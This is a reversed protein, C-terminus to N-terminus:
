LIMNELGVLKTIYNFYPLALSGIHNYPLVTQHLYRQQNLDCITSSSSSSMGICIEIDLFTAKKPLRRPLNSLKCDERFKTNLGGQNHALQAILKGLFNYPILFSTYSIVMDLNHAEYDGSHSQMM